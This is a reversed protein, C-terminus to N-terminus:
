QLAAYGVLDALAADQTAPATLTLVDGLDSLFPVGGTTTFTAVTKGAGFAVTGITSGNLALTLTTAASSCRAAPVSSRTSSSQRSGKSDSGGRDPAPAPRRPRPAASGRKLDSGPRRREQLPSRAEGAM